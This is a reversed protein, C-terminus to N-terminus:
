RPFKGGTESRSKKPEIAPVATPEVVFEGLFFMGDQELAITVELERADAPMSILVSDKAGAASIELLLSDRFKECPIKLAFRGSGDTQGAVRIARIFMNAFRIGNGTGANVVQGKLIFTTDNPMANFSSLNTASSINRQTSMNILPRQAHTTQPMALLLMMAATAVYPWTRLPKASPPFIPRHVQQRGFRGCQPPNPQALKALIEKDSMGSFDFVSKQCNSCFRGESGPQMQSWPQQCPKAISIQIPNKHTM